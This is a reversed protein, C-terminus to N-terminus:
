DAQLPALNTIYFKLTRGFEEDVHTQTHPHKHTQTPTHTHTHTHAHTASGRAGIEKSCGTGPAAM